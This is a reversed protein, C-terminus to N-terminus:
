EGKGARPILITRGVMEEAILDPGFVVNPNADVIRWWLRDDNYYHLAMADLRDGQAVRHEIVGARTVARRERYGHFPEVRNESEEFQQSGRYRSERSSAM